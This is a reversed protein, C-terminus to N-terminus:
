LCIFMYVDIGRVECEPASNSFNSAHVMLRPLFFDFFDVFLNRTKTYIYIYNNVNALIYM